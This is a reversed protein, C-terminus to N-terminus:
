CECNSRVGLALSGRRWNAPLTQFGTEPKGAEIRRCRATGGARSAALLAGDWHLPTYERLCVRSGIGSTLTTAPPPGAALAHYMCVYACMGRGDVPEMAPPSSSARVEASDDM